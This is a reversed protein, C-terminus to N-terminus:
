GWDDKAQPGSIAADDWAPEIKPKVSSAEIKLARITLAPCWKARGDVNVPNKAKDKLSEMDITGTVEIIQGEGLGDVEAIIDAAFTRMDIKKPTGRDGPAEVTVFACKKSPPVFRRVVVGCVRFGAGHQWSM